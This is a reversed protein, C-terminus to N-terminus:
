LFYFGVIVAIVGGSRIIILAVQSPETGKYQWGYQLYWFFKPFLINIIGLIIFLFAVTKFLNM